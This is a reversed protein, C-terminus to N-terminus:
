NRNKGIDAYESVLHHVEHGSVSWMVKYAYYVFIMSNKTSCFWIHCKVLFGCKSGEFVGAGEVTETLTRSCGGRVM